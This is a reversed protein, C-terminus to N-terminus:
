KTSQNAKRKSAQRNAEAPHAQQAAHQKVCANIIRLCLPCTVIKGYRPIEQEQGVFKDVEDVLGCITGDPMNPHAMHTYENM